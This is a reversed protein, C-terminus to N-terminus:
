ELIQGCPITTWQILLVGQKGSMKCKQQHTGTPASVNFMYQYPMAGHLSAARICKRKHDNLKTNEATVGPNICVNCRCLVSWM